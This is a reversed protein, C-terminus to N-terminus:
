MSGHSSSMFQACDANMEAEDISRWTDWNARIEDVSLMQYGYILGPGNKEGDHQLLLGKVSEPLQHGVHSELQQISEASAGPNLWTKAVCGKSALIRKIEIWHANM